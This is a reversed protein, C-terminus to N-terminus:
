VFLYKYKTNPEIVMPSAYGADLIQKNLMILEDEAYYYVYALLRDYGDYLETDFELYVVDVTTLLDHVYESATIGEDTNRAEDPHVSEPADIGILRVKQEHEEYIVEITDGDVIRILDAAILQKDADASEVSIRKYATMLLIVAAMLIFLMNIIDTKHIYRKM